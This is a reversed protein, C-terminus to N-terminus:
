MAGGDRSGAKRKPSTTRHRDKPKSIGKRKQNESRNRLPSDTKNRPQPRHLNYRQDREDYSADTHRASWGSIDGGM